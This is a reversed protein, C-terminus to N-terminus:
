NANQREQYRAEFIVCAIDGVDDNLSKVLGEIIATKQRGIPSRLVGELTSAKHLASGVANDIEKVEISPM